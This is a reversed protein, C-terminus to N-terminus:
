LCMIYVRLILESFDIFMYYLKLLVCLIVIFVCLILLNFLM